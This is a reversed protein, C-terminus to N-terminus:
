VGGHQGMESVQRTLGAAFQALESPTGEIVVTYGGGTIALGWEEPAVEQGDPLVVGSDHVAVECDTTMWEVHEAM